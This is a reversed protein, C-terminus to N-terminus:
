ATLLMLHGGELMTMHQRTPPTTPICLDQLSTCQPGSHKIRMNTVTLLMLHGGELMTM